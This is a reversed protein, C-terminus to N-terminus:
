ARLRLPHIRLFALRVHTPTIAHVDLSLVERPSTTRSHVLPQIPEIVSFKLHQAIKNHM